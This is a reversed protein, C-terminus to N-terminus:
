GILWWMEMWYAVVDEGLSGSCLMLWWLKMRHAVVDEDLSGGCRSVLSSFSRM